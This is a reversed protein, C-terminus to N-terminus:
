APENGRRDVWGAWRVVRAARLTVWRSPEGESEDMAFQLDDDHVIEIAWRGDSGRKSAVVEVAEAVREDPAVGASRLHELGRLVDYRYGTPYTLRLFDPDIVEGTSHRRLMGRELLYHHGRARAKTIEARAGAAQEHALLGELVNITSHFSGRISGNEQECNWGGDAMQEGLLREALGHSDQGFYAAVALVRGNICPEVEGDFFRKGWWHWTLNDHVLQVARRAESSDPDLGMDRLLVLALFAIWEPNSLDDGWRGDPRQRALLQAGWGETAIRAREAAVAEAPQDLLDRMVQWRIAPDSDLLWDEVTM